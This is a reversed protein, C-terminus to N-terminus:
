RDPSVPRAEGRWFRAVWDVEHVMPLGHFVIVRADPGLRDPADQLEGRFHPFWSRPLAEILSREPTVEPWLARVRDSYAHLDTNLCCANIWNQDGYIERIVQEARPEFLDWIRRQHGVEFRLLTSAFEGERRLTPVALFHGPYRAIPDISRIIVMDLDLYLITGELDHVRPRFLAVKNWWGPLDDTFPRTEVDRDIGRPDETLCVFRHPVTLLRRVGRALNNVYEAPYKTGWKICVVNLTM